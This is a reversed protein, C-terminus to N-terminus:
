RAQNIPVNLCRNKENPNSIKECYLKKQDPKNGYEFNIMGILQDFCQSQLPEEFSSCLEFPMQRDGVSWSATMNTIVCYDQWEKGTANQCLSIVKEKKGETLPHIQRAFNNYCTKKYEPNTVADCGEATKKLDGKFHQFMLSAQNTWCGNIYKEPIRPDDCPYFIDDDKIWRKESPVGGHVGWLNEMFVGDYCNFNAFGEVSEGLEDCMKLAKILDYDQWATFGHGAAHACQAAVGPSQEKCKEMAEVMGEMHYDALTNIIFGHYCASLFYEKCYPLGDLGYKQYIYNGITHILLHTEGTFPLGSRYMLEQAEVPGVRDMLKILEKSQDSTTKLELIKQIEPVSKTDGIRTNQIIGGFNAQKYTIFGGLIVAVVLALFVINYKKLNKISIRNWFKKKFIKM